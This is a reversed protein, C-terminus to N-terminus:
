AALHGKTNASLWHLAAEVTDCFQVAFKPPYYALYLHLMPMLGFELCVIALAQDEGAMSNAVYHDEMMVQANFDTHEPFVVVVKAPGKGAQCCGKMVKAIIANTLKINAHFRVQTVDPAIREISAYDLQTQDDM